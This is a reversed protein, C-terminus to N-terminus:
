ESPGSSAQSLETPLVFKNSTRWYRLMHERRLAEARPGQEQDRKVFDFPHSICWHAGNTRRGTVVPWGFPEPLEFDVLEQHLLGNDNSSAALVVTKHGLMCALAALLGDPGVPASHWFPTNRAKGNIGFTWHLAFRQASTLTSVSTASGLQLAHVVVDQPSSRSALMEWKRALESFSPDRHGGARPLTSLMYAGMSEAMSAGPHRIQMSRVITRVGILDVLEELGSANRAQLSTLLEIIATTKSLSVFPHRVRMATGTGRWINAWTGCIPPCEDSGLLGGWLEVELKDGDRLQRLRAVRTSNVLDFVHANVSNIAAKRLTRYHLPPEHEISQTSMELGHPYHVYRVIAIPNTWSPQPGMRAGFSSHFRRAAKGVLTDHLLAVPLQHRDFSGWQVANFRGGDLPAHGVAHYFAGAPVYPLETGRKSADNVSKLHPRISAISDSSASYYYDLAEFERQLEHASLSHIRISAAPYVAVLYERIAATMSASDGRLM